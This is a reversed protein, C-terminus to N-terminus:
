SALRRRGDLSWAGAGFAVIQLLGGTIAINKMFQIMQNQDAFNHHFALAAAFTFLAMVAAVIRTQFGLILLVSFGVEVIVAAIYGLLAAPLGAAAIYSQTAAPAGLKGIGSLLFLAALLLRGLAALINLQNPM